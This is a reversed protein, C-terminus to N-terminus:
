VEVGCIFNMKRVLKERLEANEGSRLKKCYTDFEEMVLDSFAPRYVILGNPNQAEFPKIPTKENRNFRIVSSAKTEAQHLIGCRITQYFLTATKNTFHEKLKYSNGTLFGVYFIKNSQKLLDKAEDSDRLGEYFQALTEILLCALALIAFGFKRQNSQSFCRDDARQLNEIAELYRFRIRDEFIELAREWNTAESNELVGEWDEKTWYRKDRYRSPAIWVTDKEDVHQTM